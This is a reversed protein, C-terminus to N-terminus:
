RGRGSPPFMNFVYAYGKRVPAEQNINRTMRGGIKEGGITRRLRRDSGAGSSCDIGGRGRPMRRGCVSM